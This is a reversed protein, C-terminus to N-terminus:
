YEYETVQASLTCSKSIQSAFPLAYIFLNCPYTAGVTVPESKAAKLYSTAGSCTTGTYSSPAGTITITLSISGSKLNPAANKIATLTDACPDSTSTRITQLYQAGAGTAQTLVLDTNLALGFAFTGTIVVMMLPLVFGFEVLPGGEEGGILRKFRMASFAAAGALQRRLTSVRERAFTPIKMIKRWFM